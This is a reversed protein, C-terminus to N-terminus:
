EPQGERPPESPIKLMEKLRKIEKQDKRMWYLYSQKVKEVKRDMMAYVFAPGGVILFAIVFCIITQINWWFNWESIGM